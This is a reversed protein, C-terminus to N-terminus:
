STTAPTFRTAWASRGLGAGVLGMVAGAALTAVLMPWRRFAGVTGLVQAVALLASVAIVIEALRAPPGSWSPLVAGRVRSAGWGLAGLVGVIALTGVVHTAPTLVAAMM